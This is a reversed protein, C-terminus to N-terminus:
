DGQHPDIDLAILLDNWQRVVHDASLQAHPGAVSQDAANQGFIEAHAHAAFQAQLGPLLVVRHHVDGADELQAHALQIRAIHIQVEFLRLRQQVQRAAHRDDVQPHRVDERRVGDSRLHPPQGRQIGFAPDLGVRLQHIGQSGM